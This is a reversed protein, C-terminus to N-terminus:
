TRVSGWAAVAAPLLMMSPIFVSLAPPIGPVAATTGALTLAFAGLGLPAAILAQRIMNGPEKRFFFPVCLVVSLLACLASSWRGYLLRELGERRANEAPTAQPGRLRGAVERLQPTSLNSAMKEWRRLRLALPDVSSSLEAVPVPAPAHTAPADDLGRQRFSLGNTLVWRGEQWRAEDATIKRLLLGQPDREFVTLGTILASQQAAPAPEDADALEVRQMYLLRGESDRQLHQLLGTSATAQNTKDRTLLHAIRPLIFERSALQLTVLGLSCVLVPAAAAHLSLGSSLMAVLERHKVLYAGTFGLAGVLVPGLLFVYLPVIRPWWLEAALTCAKWAVAPGSPEGGGLAARANKVFEDINLSVDVAIIVLCFFAFLLLANLLFQRAIARFLISM